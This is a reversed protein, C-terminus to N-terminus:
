IEAVSLLTLHPLSTQTRDNLFFSSLNTYQSTKHKLKVFVLTMLPILRLQPFAAMLDLQLANEWNSILLPPALGNHTAGHRPQHHQTRYSLWSSRALLYCGRHGRYWSRGGPDLGAQTGTRVEKLSPSHGPLTLQIGGEGWFLLTEGSIESASQTSNTHNGIFPINISYVM